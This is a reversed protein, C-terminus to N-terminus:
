EGPVPQGFLRLFAKDICECFYDEPIHFFYELESHTFRDRVRFFNSYAAPHNPRTNEHRYVYSFILREPPPLLRMSCLVAKCRAIEFRLKKVITEVADDDYVEIFENDVRNGEFDRGCHERVAEKFEKFDSPMIFFRSVDDASLTERLAAESFSEPADADIIRLTPFWEKLKECLELESKWRVVIYVGVPASCVFSNNGAERVNCIEVPSNKDEWKKTPDTPPFKEPNAYVDQEAWRSLIKRFEPRDAVCGEGLVSMSKSDLVENLPSEPMWETEREVGDEEAIEMNQFGIYYGENDVEYSREYRARRPNDPHLSWVEFGGPVLRGLLRRRSYRFAYKECDKFGYTYLSSVYDLIRWLPTEPERRREPKKEDKM